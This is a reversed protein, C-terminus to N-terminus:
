KSCNPTDFYAVSTCNNSNLIIVNVTGSGSYNPITVPLDSLTYSFIVGDTTGVLFTESTPNEFEFNITLSYTNNSNCSGPTAVFNSISCGDPDILACDVFDSSTFGACIAECENPFEYIWGDYEVCIPQYTQECGCGFCFDLIDFLDYDNELIVISSDELTVTLPYVFEFWWNEGFEQLFSSFLENSTITHNVGDTTVVKIPYQFSFCGDFFDSQLPTDIECDALLSFFDEESSITKTLTELIAVDFPMEIAIIYLEKSEAYIVDLLGEFNEITAISKNNYELQIPYVFDFCIDDKNKGSSTHEKFNNLVIRLAMSQETHVSEDIMTEETRCSSFLLMLLIFSIFYKLNTKM